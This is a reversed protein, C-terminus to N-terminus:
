RPLNTIHLNNNKSVECELQDDALLAISQIKLHIEQFIEQYFHLQM